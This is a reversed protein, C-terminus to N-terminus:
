VGSDRVFASYSPSVAQESARVAYVFEGVFFPRAMGEDHPLEHIRRESSFDRVLFEMSPRGRQCTLKPWMRVYRGRHPESPGEKGPPLIMRIM